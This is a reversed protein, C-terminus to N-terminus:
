VRRGPNARGNERPGKVSARLKESRSLGRLPASQKGFEAELAFHNDHGTSSPSNSECLSLRKGFGASDDM